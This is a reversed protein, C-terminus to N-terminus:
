QFLAALRDRQEQWRVPRDDLVDLLLDIDARRVGRAHAQEPDQM